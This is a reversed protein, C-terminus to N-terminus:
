IYRMVRQVAGLRASRPKKEGAKGDHVVHIAGPTWDV